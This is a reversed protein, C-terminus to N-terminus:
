AHLRIAGGTASGLQCISEPLDVKFRAFIIDLFDLLFDRDKRCARTRVDCLVLRAEQPAVFQPYHHFVQTPARAQIQYVVM